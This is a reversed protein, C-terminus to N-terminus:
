PLHEEDYWANAEDEWEPDVDATVAMVANGIRQGADAPEYEKGLCSGSAPTIQRYITRRLGTVPGAGEPMPTANATHERYEDGDLSTPEALQYVTLLPHTAGPASFKTQVLEYRRVSLAGSVNALFEGHHKNVWAEFVADHTRALASELYLMGTGIPQRPERVSM